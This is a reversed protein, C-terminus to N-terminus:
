FTEVTIKGSATGTIVTPSLRVFLGTELVGPLSKLRLHTAEPNALMTFLCDFIYNGGDTIFPSGDATKRLRVEPAMEKLRAGTDKYGFRLVEVPVPFSDDFVDRHKTEDVVIFYQKSELAVLKERFLAGGGGKILNGARDVRDAGDVLIDTALSEPYDETLKLGLSLAQQLSAESTVAVEISLNEAQVREALAEIFLATTSGTGLGVRDGDKVKTVAYHASAKKAETIETTRSM